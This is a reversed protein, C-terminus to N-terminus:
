SHSRDPAVGCSARPIFVSEMRASRPASEDGDMIRLLLEVAQAAHQRQDSAIVSVAPTMAEAWRSDGFAVLSVDAPCAKKARRLGLLLDPLFQHSGVVIATPPNDSALLKTVLSELESGRGFNWLLQSPCTDALGRSELYKRVVEARARGGSGGAGHLVAIRRHGLGVLSEMATQIAGVEDVYATPVTPHAVRQSVMVVPVGAAEARQGVTRISQVPACLLGDVRRDLLAQLHLSEVEVDNRSEAVVATYGAARAADEIGRLLSLYVPNNLDGVILGLTKTRASRLNRALLNPQYGLERISTLVAERVPPRVSPHENVVRSVTGVSVRAHVAVDHITVM